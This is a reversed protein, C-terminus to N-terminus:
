QAYAQQGRGRQQGLPRAGPLGVLVGIEAEFPEPGLEHSGLGGQSLDAVVEPPAGHPGGERPHDGGLPHLHPVIHVGALHQPAQHRQVLQEDGGAHGLLVHADTVTLEEGSGHCLPGPDAGASEPGVHLIGGSDLRVISGQGDVYVSAFPAMADLRWADVPRGGRTLNRRGIAAHGDLIMRVLIRTVLGGLILELLDALGVLNETIRLLARRIILVTVGGEVASSRAELESGVRSPASPTSPIRRPMRWRPPRKSMM